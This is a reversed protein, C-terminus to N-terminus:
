QNSSFGQAAVLQPVPFRKLIKWLIVVSGDTDQSVVRFAVLLDSNRYNISRLLYSNKKKMALRSKYTFGNMEVGVGSRRYQERAEAELTPAAFSALFQAAPHNLSIDELETKGLKTLFGFDAGAFGVGFQGQELSVDSGFGYEHTLRAFSYFAGGGEITLKNDFTERPLLRILGTDPQTLFEANKRLDKASPALFQQETAKLESLVARIDNELATRDESQARTSTGVFGVFFLAILFSFIRSRIM